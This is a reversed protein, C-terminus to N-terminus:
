CLQKVLKEQLRWMRKKEQPKKDSQGLMHLLGHILLRTLETRLSIGYIKANTKAVPVSIYIDGLPFEERFNKFSEYPFAIVDTTGVKHLYKKNIKKITPNDVFLVTLEGKLPVKESDLVTKVVKKLFAPSPCRFSQAGGVLRRNVKV